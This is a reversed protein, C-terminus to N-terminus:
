DDMREESYTQTLSELQGCQQPHQESPYASRCPDGLQPRDNPLHSRRVVRGAELYTLDDEQMHRM